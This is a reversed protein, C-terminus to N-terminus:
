ILMLGGVARAFILGADIAAHPASVEMPHPDDQCEHWFLAGGIVLVWLSFAIPLFLSALVYLAFLGGLVKFAMPLDFVGIAFLFRRRRLPNMPMSRMTVLDAGLVALNSFAGLCVLALTCTLLSPREKVFFPCIYFLFTFLAVVFQAPTLFALWSTATKEETMIVANPQFTKLQELVGAPTEVAIAEECKEWVPLDHASNGAYDFGKEGFRAVLADAKAHARLNTVGDSAMVGDFLDLHRAIEEAPREDSATVLYLPRGSAREQRLFALFHEHYPLKKPDLNVKQGLRKKLFPRGKLFWSLIPIAHFPSDHLYLLLSEELVDSAILTGDLDICLPRM